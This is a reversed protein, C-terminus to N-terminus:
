NADSQRAKPGDVSRPVRVWLPIRRRQPSKTTCTGLRSMTHVGFCIMLWFRFMNKYELSFPSCPFCFSYRGASLCYRSVRPPSSNKQNRMKVDISTRSSTGHKLRAVDKAYVSASSSASRITENSGAESLSSSHTSVCALRPLYRKGRSRTMDPESYEKCSRLVILGGLDRIDWVRVVM